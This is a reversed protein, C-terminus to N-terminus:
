RNEPAERDRAGRHAHHAAGCFYLHHIQHICDDVGYGLLDEAFLNGRCVDLGIPQARRVVLRARESHSIVGGLGYQRMAPRPVNWAISPAKCDTGLKSKPRSQHVIGIGCFKRSSSSNKVLSNWDFLPTKMRNLFGSVDKRPRRAYRARADPPGSHPLTLFRGAVRVM